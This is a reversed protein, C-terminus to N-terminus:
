NGEGHQRSSNVGARLRRLLGIIGFCGFGAALLAATPAEWTRVLDGPARMATISEVAPKQGTFILDGILVRPYDFDYDFDTPITDVRALVGFSGNRAIRRTEFIMPGAVAEACLGLLTVIVLFATLRFHVTSRTFFIRLSPCALCFFFGV